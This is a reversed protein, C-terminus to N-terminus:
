RYCSVHYLPVTEFYNYYAGPNTCVSLSDSDPTKSAEQDCKSKRKRKKKQSKVPKTVLHTVELKATVETESTQDVNGKAVSVEVNGDGGGEMVKEIRAMRSMQNFDAEEQRLCLGEPETAHTEGSESKTRVTAVAATRAKVAEFEKETSANQLDSFLSAARNLMGAAKVKAAAAKTVTFEKVSRAKSAITEAVRQRSNSVPLDQLSNTKSGDLSGNEMDHSDNSVSFDAADVDNASRSFLGKLKSVVSRASSSIAEKIDDKKNEINNGELPMSEETQTTRKKDRKAVHNNHISFLSTSSLQGINLLGAKSPTFAGYDFYECDITLEFVIYELGSAITLLVPVRQEDRMLAEQHYYKELLVRNESFLRLYNELINENLAQYLWARGRGLDTSVSTLHQILHLEDKRTYEVVYAWYGSDV